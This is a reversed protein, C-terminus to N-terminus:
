STRGDAVHFVFIAKRKLTPRLLTYSGFIKLGFLNEVREPGPPGPAFHPSSDAARPICRPILEWEVTSVKGRCSGLALGWAHNAPSEWPPIPLTAFGSAR